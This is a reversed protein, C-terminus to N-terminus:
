SAIGGFFAAFVPGLGDRLAGFDCLVYTMSPTGGVVVGIARNQSDFVLSGSEGAVSFPDNSDSTVAVVDLFRTVASGDSQFAVVQGSVPTAVTGRISFGRSTAEHKVTENPQVPDTRFPIPLSAFSHGFRVDAGSLEPFRAVAFDKVTGIAGFWLAGTVGPEHTVNVIDGNAWIGSAFAGGAIPLLGHGSGLVWSGGNPNPAIATITSTRTGTTVQDFTDVAHLRPKGVEVVDVSLGDVTAPILTDKPLEAARVKRVVHVILSLESTAIGGKRKTGRFVGVVGPREVLYTAAREHRKM